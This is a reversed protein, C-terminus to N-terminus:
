LVFLTLGKEFTVHKPYNADMVDRFDIADYVDYFIQSIKKDRFYATVKYM